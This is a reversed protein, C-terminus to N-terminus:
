SGRAYHIEDQPRRRPPNLSVCFLPFSSIGVEGVINVKLRNM